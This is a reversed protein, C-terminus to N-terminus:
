FCYFIGLPLYFNQRQRAVYSYAKVCIDRLIAEIDKRFNEFFHRFIGLFNRFIEFFGRFRM